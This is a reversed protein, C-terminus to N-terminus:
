WGQSIKNRPHLYSHAVQGQGYPPRTKAGVVSHSRYVQTHWSSWPLLPGSQQQWLYSEKLPEYGRTKKKLCTGRPHEKVMKWGKTNQLPFCKQLLTFNNASFGLNDSSFASQSRRPEGSVEWRGGGTGMESCLHPEFFFVSQKLNYSM